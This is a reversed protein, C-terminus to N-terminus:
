VTGTGRKREEKLIIHREQATLQPPIIGFKQLIMRKADKGLEDEGIEEVVQKKLGEIITM